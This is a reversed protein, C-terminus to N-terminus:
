KNYEAVNFAGLFTVPYISVNFKEIISGSLIHVCYRSCLHIEVISECLRHENWWKVIFLAALKNVRFFTILLMHAGRFVTSAPTLAGVVGVSTAVSCYFARCMRVAVRCLRRVCQWQWPCVPLVARNKRSSRDMMEIHRDKDTWRRWYKKILRSWYM